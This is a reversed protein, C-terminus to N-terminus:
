MSPTGEPDDFVVDYNSEPGPHSLLDYESGKHATYPDRGRPSCQGSLEKAATLLHSFNVNSNQTDLIIVTAIVISVHHEEDLGPHYQSLSLRM